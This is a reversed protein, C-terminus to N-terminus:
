LRDLSSFIWLTFLLHHVAMAEVFDFGVPFACGPFPFGSFNRLVTLARGGESVSPLEGGWVDLAVDGVAPFGEWGLFFAAAFFDTTPFPYGSFPLFDVM